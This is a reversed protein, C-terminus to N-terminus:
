LVTFQYQTNLIDTYYTGSAPFPTPTSVTVPTSMCRWAGWQGGCGAAGSPERMFSIARELAADAAEIGEGNHQSKVIHKVDTRLLSVLVIGFLALVGAIFMAFVSIQGSQTRRSM